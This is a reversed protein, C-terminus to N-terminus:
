LNRVKRQQKLFRATVPYGHVTGSCEEAWVYDADEGWCVGITRGVHM